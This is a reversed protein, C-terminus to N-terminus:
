YSFGWGYKLTSSISRGAYELHDKQYIPEEGRKLFFKMLAADGDLRSRRQTSRVTVGRVMPRQLDRNMKEEQFGLFSFKGLVNSTDAVAPMPILKSLEDDLFRVASWLGAKYLQNRLDVASIMEDVCRRSAPFVNRVRTISVDHGDYYEAGCSERFKGTWFSKRANVVFGYRALHSMVSPASTTPCIIDDGYVRVSGIFHKFDARRRFTIGESEEIGLFVLTLFVVMEMPFCLASGMSAFKRLSIVLREKSESSSKPPVSATMSRCAQVADNLHPYPFMLREVLWNSVRDSAESLDLTALNGTLSGEWALLQNPEQYKTDMMHSLLSDKRVNETFRELIAQQVYQMHVPEMAIVRPAKLTKPVLIVKVPPEAGPEFFKVADYRDSMFSRSTGYKWFPFCSELRETWFPLRYKANAFIRDATSGPGHKPLLEFHAIDRDLQQFLNGFLMNGIQFFREEDLPHDLELYGLEEEVRLYGDLAKDVREPTCDLKIKGFMLCIQRVARIASISPTELLAGSTREFVLELFGSLFIPVRGRKRFGPFSSPAIQSEALGKEFDSCFAPLTITLFSMGQDEVRAVITELDRSTDVSIEDGCQALILELLTIEHSKM